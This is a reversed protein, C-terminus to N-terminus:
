TYKRFKKAVEAAPVGMEEMLFPVADAVSAVRKKYRQAIAQTVDNWELNQHGRLWSDLNIPEQEGNGEEDDDVDDIGRPMDPGGEATAAAVRKEHASIARKMMKEATDRRKRAEPSNGEYDPHELILFGQADFPLGDQYFHVDQHPDGPARAGFVSGHPRSKDMRVKVISTFINAPEDQQQDRLTTDTM